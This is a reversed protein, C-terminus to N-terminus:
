NHYLPKVLSRISADKRFIVNLGKNCKLVAFVDPHIYRETVILRKLKPLAAILAAQIDSITLYQCELTEINEWDSINFDKLATMHGIQFSLPKLSLNLHKLSEPLMLQKFCTTSPIQLYRLEELNSLGTTIAKPGRPLILIKLLDLVLLQSSFKKCKPITHGTYQAREYVELKTLNPNIMIQRFKMGDLGNKMDEYPLEIAPPLRLLPLMDKGSLEYVFTHGEKRRFINETGPLLRITQPNIHAKITNLTMKRYSNGLGRFVAPMAISVLRRIVVGEDDTKNRKSISEGDPSPDSLVRKRSAQVDVSFGLVLVAVLSAVVGKM